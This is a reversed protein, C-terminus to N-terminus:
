PDSSLSRIFNAMHWADAIRSQLENAFSPMPSGDLGTMLTRVIDRASWGNKFAFRNTLDTPTIPLSSSDLLQDAKAVRDIGRGGIGHCEQCTFKFYAERGKQISDPTPPISLNEITMQLPVDGEVIDPIFTKLYGIVDYVAQRPLGAFSPM